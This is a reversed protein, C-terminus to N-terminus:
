AAAHEAMSTDSIQMGGESKKGQAHWLEIRQRDLATLGQGPSNDYQWSRQLHQRFTQLKPHNIECAARLCAKLPSRRSHCIDVSPAQLLSHLCSVLLIQTSQGPAGAARQMGCRGGSWSRAARTAQARMQLLCQMKERITGEQDILSTSEALLSDNLATLFLQSGCILM